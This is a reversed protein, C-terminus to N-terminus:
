SLGGGASQLAFQGLPSYLGTGWQASNSTGGTQVLSPNTYGAVTAQRAFNQNDANYQAERTAQAEDQALSNNMVRRGAEQAAPSSAAGFPNQWANQEQERLRAYRYAISPDVTAKMDRLTSVDQSEPPTMYSYTNTTSTKAKSKGM